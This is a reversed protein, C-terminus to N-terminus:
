PRFNATALRDLLDVLFRQRRVSVRILCGIADRGLRRFKCVGHACAALKQERAAVSNYSCQLAALERAVSAVHPERLRRWGIRVSYRMTSLPL